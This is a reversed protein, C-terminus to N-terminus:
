EVPCIRFTSPPNLKRLKYPPTRSITLAHQAIEAAFAVVSATNDRPLSCINTSLADNGNLASGRLTLM